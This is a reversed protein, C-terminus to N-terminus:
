PLKKMELVMKMLYPTTLGDMQKKLQHNDHNQFIVNIILGIGFSIIYTVGIIFLQIVM